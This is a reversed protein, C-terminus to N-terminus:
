NLSVFHEAIKNNHKIIKNNVESLNQIQDVMFLFSNKVQKYEEKFGPYELHLLNFEGELKEVDLLADNQKAKNEEQRKLLIWEKKYAKAQEVLKDYLPKLM